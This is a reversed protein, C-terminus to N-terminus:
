WRGLLLVLVVLLAELLSFLILAWLIFSVIIGSPM